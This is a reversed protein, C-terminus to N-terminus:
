AGRRKSKGTNATTNANLQSGRIGHQEDFGKSNGANGANQIATHSSPNKGKHNPHQHQTRPDM